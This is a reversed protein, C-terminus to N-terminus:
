DRMYFDLFQETLVKMREHMEPAIEEILDLTVDAVSVTSRYQYTSFIVLTAIMKDHQALQRGYLNTKDVDGQWVADALYLALSCIQETEEDLSQIKKNELYNIIGHGLATKDPSDTSEEVLIRARRLALFPEINSLARLAYKDVYSDESFTIMYFLVKPIRPDPSLKAFADLIKHTSDTDESHGFGFALSSLIEIDVKKVLISLDSAAAGVQWPLPHATTNCWDFLDLTTHDPIRLFLIDVMAKIRHQDTSTTEQHYTM